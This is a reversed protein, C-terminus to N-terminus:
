YLTTNPSLRLAINLLPKSWQQQGSKLQNFKNSVSVENDKEIEALIEENAPNIIILKEGSM